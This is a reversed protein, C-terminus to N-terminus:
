LSKLEQSRCIHVVGLLWPSCHGACPIPASIGKCVKSQAQAGTLASVRCAGDRCPLSIVSMQFLIWTNM